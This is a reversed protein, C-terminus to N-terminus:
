RPAESERAFFAAAKRLIEKEERLRANERRLRRMEDQEDTTVGPEVGADVRDQRRWNRLTQPCIGLAGAVEKATRDGRELLRLAEQRFEPPYPPNTRPV